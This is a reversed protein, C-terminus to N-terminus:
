LVPGPVLQNRFELNVRLVDLRRHHPLRPLVDLHSSGCPLLERHRDLALVNLLEVHPLSIFLGRFITTVMFGDHDHLLVPLFRQNHNVCLVKDFQEFLYSTDNKM